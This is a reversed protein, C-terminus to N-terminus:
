YTCIIKEVESIPASYVPNRRMDAPQLVVYTTNNKEQLLVYGYIEHSCKGRSLVTTLRINTPTLTVNNSTTYSTM